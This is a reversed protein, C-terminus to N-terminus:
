SARPRDRRGRDQGRHRSRRLRRPDPHRRARALVEFPDARPEPADEADDDEPEREDLEREGQRELSESDIWDIQVQSDQLSAAHRLAESVSLYADELQVYKGVLAIRVTRTARASREIPEKWRASSRRLRRSRRLARPHLRRRGPRPLHAPGQLHQGRRVGLRDGRRSPERVARDEQPDRAVALGGLPVDAHRARDRHPAARQGLAPHAEDEARGRPRHLPRAHPPHVHLAAAGRRRPVPPDGRPVAAVRHRRRHRRDRHDRLGRRQVRRDARDAAQDRRHHAARGARHRRPLRRPARPPHGHRLHRRGDRQLRPQHQRRHLARLPRPRPRDRRRGRHRVGRRAPLAVDHGPRRQHLPRVEAAGGDPRALRAAARDIGRRDGQRALLGRRRDRLHLPDQETAQAHRDSTHLTMLAQGLLRTRAAGSDTRCVRFDLSARRLPHDRRARGLAVLQGTGSLTLVLWLGALAGLLNAGTDGLM